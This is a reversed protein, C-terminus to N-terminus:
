NKIFDKYIRRQKQLYEFMDAMMGGSYNEIKINYWNKMIMEIDNAQAILEPDTWYKKGISQNSKSDSMSVELAQKEQNFGHVKEPKGDYSSDIGFLKFQYFGMMQLLGIGRTVSTSGGGVLPSQTKMKKLVDAEGANVAAHYIFTKVGQKHLYQLTSPHCQSAVFYIVDKNTKEVFSPIHERPDLLICAYPVIKNELLYSLATKSSFILHGPEKLSKKLIRMNESTKYSPAGGIMYAVSNHIQCPMIEKMGTMRAFLINEEVNKQILENPVANKTQISIQGPNAPKEAANAPQKIYELVSGTVALKVNVIDDDIFVSDSIPLVLHKIKALVPNVSKKLLEESDTEFVKNLLICPTQNFSNLISVFDQPDNLENCLLLHTHPLKIKVEEGNKDLFTYEQQIDIEDSLNVLFYNFNTYKTKLSQLKNEYESLKQGLGLGFYTLEDNIVLADDIIKKTIDFDDIGVETIIKPKIFNTFQKIQNFRNTM